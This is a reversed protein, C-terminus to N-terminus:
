SLIKFSPGVPQGLTCPQHAYHAPGQEWRGFVSSRKWNHKSESQRVSQYETIRDGSVNWVWHFSTPAPIHIFTFPTQKSTSNTPFHHQFCQTMEVHPSSIWVSATKQSSRFLHPSRCTILPLHADCVLSTRVTSPFIYGHNQATVRQWVRHWILWRALIQGTNKMPSLQKAFDKLDSFM